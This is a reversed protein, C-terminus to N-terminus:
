PYTFQRIALPPGADIVVVATHRGLDAPHLHFAVVAPSSSVAFEYVLREGNVRVSSPQPTIHEVRFAHLYSATIEIRTVGQGAAASPSVTLVTDAGSRVYREYEVNGSTADGTRAHSLPGGGFVGALALLLFAAILAWGIRQIRWEHHHFILASEFDEQQKTKRM